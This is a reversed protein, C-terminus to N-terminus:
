YKTIILLIIIIILSLILFDKKNMNDGGETFSNPLMWSNFIETILNYCLIFLYLTGPYAVNIYLQQFFIYNIINHIHIFNDEYFLFPFM